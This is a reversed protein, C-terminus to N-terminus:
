LMEYLKRLQVDKLELQGFEKTTLNRQPVSKEPDDRGTKVISFKHLYIKGDKAAKFTIYEDIFYMGGCTQQEITFYDGKAVIRGFGNSPCNGDEDAERVIDQNAAVVKGAADLVELGKGTNRIYGDRFKQGKDASQPAPEPLSEAAGRAADVHERAAAPEPKSPGAQACGAGLLIAAALLSFATRKM